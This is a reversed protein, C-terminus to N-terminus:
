HFVSGGVVFALGNPKRSVIIGRGPRIEDGNTRMPMFAQETIDNIALHPQIIRTSRGLGAPILNGIMKWLHRQVRQHHHGVMNVTNKKDDLGWDYPRFIKQGWWDEALLNIRWLAVM